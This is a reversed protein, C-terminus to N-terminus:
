RPKYCKGSDCDTFEGIALEYQIKEISELADYELKCIYGPNLVSKCLEGKASSSTKNYLNNGEAFKEVINRGSIIILITLIIVILIYNFVKTEMKFVLCIGWYRCFVM